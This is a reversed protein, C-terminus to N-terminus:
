NVGCEVPYGAEIWAKIGGEVVHLDEYGLSGLYEAAKTARKGVGCHIYLAYGRDILNVNHELTSLPILKSGPIRVSEHEPVERVDILQCSTKSNLLERLKEINITQIM